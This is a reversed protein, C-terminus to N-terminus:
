MNSYVPSSFIGPPPAGAQSGLCWSFFNLKYEDETINLIGIGNEFVQQLKYSVLKCAKLFMECCNVFDKTYFKIYLFIEVRIQSQFAKHHRTKIHIWHGLSM